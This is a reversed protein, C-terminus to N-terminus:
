RLPERTQMTREGVIHLLIQDEVGTATGRRIAVEEEVELDGTCNGPFFVKLKIINFRFSKVIKKKETLMKYGIQLRCIMTISRHSIWVKKVLKFDCDERPCM